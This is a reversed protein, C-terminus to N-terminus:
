PRGPELETAYPRVHRSSSAPSAPTRLAQETWPESAINAMQRQPESSCFSRQSGAICAAFRDAAEAEGLGVGAGVGARHARVRAAVAGVPDQGARLHPDRVARDRVDRDDPRAGLVALDAAEEDLLSRHRAEARRLDVALEREARRDVESSTSSSTRTGSSFTRGPEVVSRPGSEHRSSARCPITHPATPAARAHKSAASSYAAPRSTNPLGIAAVLQRLLLEGLHRELDVAPESTAWWRPRM